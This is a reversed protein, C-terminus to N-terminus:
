PTDFWAIGNPGGHEIVFRAPGNPHVHMIMKRGLNMRQWRVPANPGAGGKIPHAEPLEYSMADNRYLRGDAIDNNFRETHFYFNACTPLAVTMSVVGEAASHDFSVLDSAERCNWDIEVLRVIEASVGLALRVYKPNAEPLGEASLVYIQRTGTPVEHLVADMARYDDHREPKAIWNALQYSSRALSMAFCLALGLLLITKSRREVEAVVAPWAFVVVSTAYREELLPLAFHFALASIAWLTVLCVADVTPGRMEHTAYRIRSVAEPLVQIAWFLLLTYVLLATGWDLILHAKGQDPSDPRVQHTVFLYHLHMLKYSTVKLFDTIPTYGATAYTGGIGGFFTIRLGLWMAVPLLMATATLARRRLSEDPKPRLMITLAAAFPAWVTNEKTLRGVFLLALCLLDRRSLVALFAGTVLLTALPEIAFALGSLWSVLVPPSLMVLMASLLSPGTRLRLVAQAIYFAVAGIGAVAFSNILQYSAWDRGLVFHAV